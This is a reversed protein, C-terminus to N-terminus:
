ANGGGVIFVDTQVDDKWDLQRAPYRLLDENENQVDLNELTTNLIWIKWQIAGDSSEVPLLMVKGGCTAAPSGTRFSIGCDIFQQGHFLTDAMFKM